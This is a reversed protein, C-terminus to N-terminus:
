KIHSEILADCTALMSHAPGQSGFIHHAAIAGEIILLLGDALNDPEAVNLDRALQALTARMEGKCEQVVMRGPHAPESLEVAVNSM